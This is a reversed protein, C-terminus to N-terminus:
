ISDARSRSFDNSWFARASPRKYHAQHSDNLVRMERGICCIWPVSLRPLCITSTMHWAARSTVLRKWRRRKRLSVSHASENNSRPACVSRSRPLSNAYALKPTLSITIDTNTGFWRVIVGQENRIPVTRTLFQRFVGDAGRLPFTMEFPEGTALSSKWREVVGPLIEPDHVSEWRWGELDEAGLGTYEHWRRNYWYIHGDAYAMWCLTPINDALAHFEEARSRLAEEARKRDTVDVAASIQLRRGDVLRGLRVNQFDWIRSSGDAIRVNVEGVKIEGEREFEEAMLKHVFSLREAPYALAFWDFHTKLQDRSYGTLEIWKRSLELM